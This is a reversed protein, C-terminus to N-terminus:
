YREPRKNPDNLGTPLVWKGYPFNGVRMAPGHKEQALQYAQDLSTVATIRNLAFDELREPETVVIVEKRAMIEIIPMWLCAHWLAQKGYFVDEFLRRIAEPTPPMYDKAYSYHAMGGPVPTALIITGGDKVFHDLNAVPWCAHAFFFDGPFSGAIALDVKGGASEVDFTYHRDYKAVSARHAAITEGATLEMVELDPNLVALLSMDLGSLRCADEIDERMRNLPPEYGVNSYPSTMLRHNWEVTEFSSVGPVVMSGGGGYGWLTAQTMTVALTLDAGMFRKHCSLPTGYTTVGVFDFDWTERAKSQYVPVGSALIEKGLKRELEAHRMERLLGSAVLIEAKKGADAIAKMIPPLLKHAPTLRAFNDVLICVTNAQALRQSFPPGAVPNELADMVARGLDPLPGPFSKATDLALNEGTLDFDLVGKVGYPIRINAM